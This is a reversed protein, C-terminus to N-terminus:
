APADLDKFMEYADVEDLYYRRLRRSTSYGLKKYFAIAPENEVSTELVVCAAGSAKLRHHAEAMLCTGLRAQRFEPLVDITIIHGCPNSEGNHMCRALLFGALRGEQEGVIVIVGPELLTMAIDETSYAIGPPFCVRDIECIVEFDEPRYERVEM